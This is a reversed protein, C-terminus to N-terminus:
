SAPLAVPTEALGNNSLSFVADLTPLLENKVGKIGIEQNQVLIRFQSLEPRASIAMAISDQIPTIAEVDPVQIRDTPIVHANAILPNQVGNRSLANKLITEQQLLQTQSVTLAQQSAAVEAEAGRVEM